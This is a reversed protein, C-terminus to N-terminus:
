LPCSASYIVHRFDFKLQLSSLISSRYDAQTFGYEPPYLTPPRFNHTALNPFCEPPSSLRSKRLCSFVMPTFSQHIWLTSVAEAATVDVTAYFRMLWTSKFMAEVAVPSDAVQQLTFLRRISYQSARWCKM